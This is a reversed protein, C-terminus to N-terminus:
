IVQDTDPLAQGRAVRAINGLWQRAGKASNEFATSACHPTVIVNHLILITETM